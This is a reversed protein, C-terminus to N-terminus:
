NRFDALADFVLYLIRRKLRKKRMEALFDAELSFFWKVFDIVFRLTATTM